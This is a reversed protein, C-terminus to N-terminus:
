NCDIKNQKGTSCVITNDIIAYSDIEPNDVKAKCCINRASKEVLESYDNQLAIFENNRTELELKLKEIESEYKEKLISYNYKFSIKQQELENKLMYNMKELEYSQNKHSTVENLCVENSDKYSQLTTNCVLVDKQLKDINRLVDAASLDMDEFQKIIKFGVLAPKILTIIILILLIVIILAANIHHKHVEIKSKKSRKNFEFSM